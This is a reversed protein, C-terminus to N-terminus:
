SPSEGHATGPPRPPRFGISDERHPKTNPGQARQQTARIPPHALPVRMHAVRFRISGVLLKWVKLILSPAALSPARQSNTRPSVEHTPSHPDSSHDPPM